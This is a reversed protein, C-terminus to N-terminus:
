KLLKREKRSASIVFQMYITSVSLLIVSILLAIRYSGFLDYCLNVAPAGLAYGATNVSVFVGLVENFSKRGFLDGAFIPLMITELPLALSSFVGYIIALLKGVPSDSVFLLAIFVMTGTVSCIATTIRLGFRDYIIGTLFKFLSLTLSHISLVIAIFKASLGVDKMYVASIGTIGQLVCGTLFICVLSGYFYVKKTIQSYEVGEWYDGRKKKESKITNRESEEKPEERFFIMVVAGVCLLVMAILFYATKYGYTNGEQYIVPSVIQTALAGGLGNAALIAGMITGKSEKCWKNVVCGVMTTTTWALGIGLFCGGVCFMLFHNAVSYILFAIVLSLFGAGILKKTGFRYVLTGFFINIISTSIYRCSDNLSFATRSIGTTKTVAAVFLSKTSSCFGLCTFVMVFCLGVIVWKYDFSIKKIKQLKM